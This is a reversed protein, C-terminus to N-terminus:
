SCIILYTLNRCDLSPKSGARKHVLHYAQQIWGSAAVSKTRTALTEEILQDSLVANTHNFMACVADASGSSIARSLHYLQNLKSLIFTRISAVIVIM